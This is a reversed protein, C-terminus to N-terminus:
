PPISPGYRRRWLILAVIIAIVFITAVAGIMAVSGVDEMGPLANPHSVKVDLREQTDIPEDMVLAVITFIDTAVTTPIRMLIVITGYPDTTSYSTESGPVVVQTFAHALVFRVSPLNRVPELTGRYSVVASIVIMDGAEYETKDTTIAVDVHLEDLTFERIAWNNSENSEYVDRMQDLLVWIEYAGPQTMDVIWPQTIEVANETQNASLNGYSGRYLTRNYIGIADRIGIDVDFVSANGDGLNRLIAHIIDVKGFVDHSINLGYHTIYIDSSTISLDPENAAVSSSSTAWATICRSNSSKISLSNSCNEAPVLSILVLLVGALTM